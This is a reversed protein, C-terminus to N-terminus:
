FGYKTQKLYNYLLKTENELSEIKLEFEKQKLEIEKELYELNLELIEITNKQEAIWSQVSTEYQKQIDM